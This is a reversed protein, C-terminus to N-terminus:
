HDSSAIYFTGSTFGESDSWRVPGDGYDEYADDWDQTAHVIDGEYVKRGINDTTGTYRGITDTKVLVKKDDETTLIATGYQNKKVNWGFAFLNDTAKVPIARLDLRLYIAGKM